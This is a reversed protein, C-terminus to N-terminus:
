DVANVPTRGYVTRLPYRYLSVTVVDPVNLLAGDNSPALSTM